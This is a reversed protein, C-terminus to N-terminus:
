GKNKFKQLIAAQLNCTKASYLRFYSRSSNVLDTTTPTSFMDEKNPGTPFSNGTDVCFRLLFALVIHQIHCFGNV